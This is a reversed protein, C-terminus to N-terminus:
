LYAIEKVVLELPWHQRLWCAFLEVAITYHMRAHILVGLQTLGELALVLDRESILPSVLGAIKHYEIEKSTHGLQAIASLILKNRQTSLITNSEWLHQFRTSDAKNVWEQVVASTSRETFVSEKQQMLEYLHWCLLQLYFPHGATVSLLYAVAEDTITGVKTLGDRILKSAADSRLCDLRVDYATNFLSAIDPQQKFQSLLGGGSLVLHMGRGYQSSSRLHSFVSARTLEAERLSWLCQFEDLILVLTHGQFHEQVFSLFSDFLTLPERRLRKLHPVTLDAVLEPVNERLVDTIRHMVHDLFNTMPMDSVGQVDIFVPLFDEQSRHKLELLLSSKGIRKQGWLVITTNQSQDHLLGEILQRETERGYFRPGLALKPGYPNSSTKSPLVLSSPAAPLPSTPSAPLLEVHTVYPVKELEKQLRTREAETTKGLLIHADAMVGDAHSTVKVSQVNCELLMLVKTLDAALGNRGLADVVVTYNPEAPEDWKVPITDKTERLTPCGRRHVYIVQDQGKYSLYGTIDEPAIPNCCKALLKPLVDLKPSLAHVVTPTLPKTARITQLQSVIKPAKSRGVGVSVLLDEWNKMQEKLAIQTLLQRLQAKEIRINNLRLQRALLQQGYSIMEPRRNQTLWQRIRSMAYPTRVDNLMDLTPEAELGGSILEVRDGMKLVHRRTAHEGNVLGGICRHGLDTHIAYAFDLVTSGAPIYKPEGTDTFVQIKGNSERKLVAKQPPHPLLEEAVGWWCATIGREDVINMTHTRISINLLVDPQYKIQTHLAQYGNDRRNSIYDHFQKEVSPYRKHLVAMIKYCDYENETLIVFVGADSLKLPSLEAHVPRGHKANYDIQKRYLTHLPTAVWHVESDPIARQLEHHLENAVKQAERRDFSSYYNKLMEYYTPYLIRFSYDELQNKVLTMGLREALPVLLSFGMRAARDQFDRTLSTITQLNHLRDAMKIILVGREQQLITEIHQSIDGIDGSNAYEREVHRFVSNLQIIAQLLSRIETGLRQEVIDLDYESSYDPSQIDHLLGVAVLRLPAHWAALTAAVALCHTVFPEGTVREFGKHADEAIQYAETLIRRIDRITSKGTSRTVLQILDNLEM